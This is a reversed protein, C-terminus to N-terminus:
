RRSLDHWQHGQGNRGIPESHNNKRGRKPGLIICLEGKKIEFNVNNAARVRGEGSGYEKCVNQFSIYEM